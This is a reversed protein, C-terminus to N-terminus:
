ITAASARVATANVREGPLAWSAGSPRSSRFPRSAGAPDKRAELFEIGDEETENDEHKYDLWQSLTLEGQYKRM